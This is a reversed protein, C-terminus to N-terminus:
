KIMPNLKNKLNITKVVNKFADFQTRFKYFSQNCFNHLAKQIEFEMTDVRLGNPFYSTDVGKVFTIMKGLTYIIADSTVSSDCSVPIHVIGSKILLKKRRKGLDLDSVSIM